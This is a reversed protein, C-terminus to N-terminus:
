STVAERKEGDGKRSMTKKEKNKVMGGRLIRLVVV